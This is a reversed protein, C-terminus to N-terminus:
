KEKSQSIIGIDTQSNQGLAIQSSLDGAYIAKAHEVARQLIDHHLSPDLECTQKTVIGDDFSVDEGTFDRLIIARPRRVYRIVYSKIEDFPAVILDAMKKNNSNDLIRWAQNNVPRKYPKSMLNSYQVYTVPIVVLRINDKNNRRVTVYENVFMMVDNELAVARSEDRMDFFSDLFPSVTITGDKETTCNLYARNFTTSQPLQYINNNNKNFKKIDEISDIQTSNLDVPGSLSCKVSKYEVTKMIMSFDIQRRENSDFGEQTKNKRPNFYDQVIENQAKNLLVSKEYDNLGPAQNSTISNYLVDFEDRFEENSM